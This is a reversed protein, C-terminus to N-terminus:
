STLSADTQNKYIETIIKTLSRKYPAGCADFACSQLKTCLNYARGKSKCPLLCVQMLLVCNSIM